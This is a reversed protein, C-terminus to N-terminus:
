SPRLGEYLRLLSGSFIEDATYDDRCDFAGSLELEVLGHAMAWMATAVAVPDDERMIGRTMADHIVRVVLEFVGACRMMQEEGPEYAPDIRGVILLFLDRQEKAFKRYAIGLARLQDRGPESSEVAEQLYATFLDAGEVQLADLVAEKSQFYDYLTPATGGVARALVRMSLKKYGDEHIIQRAADLIDQRMMQRVRERRSQVATEELESVVVAIV